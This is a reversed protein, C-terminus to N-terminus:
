KQLFVLWKKWFFLMYTTSLQIFISSPFAVTFPNYYKKDQKYPVLSNFLTSLVGTWFNNTVIGDANLNELMKM